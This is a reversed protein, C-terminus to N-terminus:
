STGENLLAQRFYKQATNYIIKNHGAVRRVEITINKSRDVMEFSLYKSRRYEGWSIEIVDKWYITIGTMYITVKEEDFELAVENKFASIIHKLLVLIFVVTFFLLGFVVIVWPKFENALIGMSVLASIIFIFFIMGFWAFIKSYKFTTIGM